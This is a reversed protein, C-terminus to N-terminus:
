CSAVERCAEHGALIATRLVGADTAPVRVKIGDPLEIEVLNLGAVNVPLFRGPLDGGSAGPGAQEVGGPERGRQELRNRWRYFSANSVGERRCFEAVTL